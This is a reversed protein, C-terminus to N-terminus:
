KKETYYKIMFVVCRFLDIIYGTSMKQQKWNKLIIFLAARFTIKNPQQHVYEAGM